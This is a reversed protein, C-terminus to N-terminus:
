FFAASTVAAVLSLLCCCIGLILTPIGLMPAKRRLRAVARLVVFLCIPIEVLTTLIKPAIFIPDDAVYLLMSFFGPLGLLVTIASTGVVVLGIASWVVHGVRSAGEPPVRRFLRSDLVGLVGLQFSVLVGLSMLFM